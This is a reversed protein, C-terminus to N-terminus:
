PQWLMDYWISGGHNSDSLGLNKFGNLEYYSILYDHCTLIIGQRNQAVALDKMAALLATGIGQKQFKPSISLSTIAIYGGSEPNKQSGHFLHDELKAESVVPGEIYGAIQDELVAVLFTDPNVQTRALIVEASAAEEPSFNAAEIAHVFPWDKEVVHRILM